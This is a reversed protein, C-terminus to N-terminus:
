RRMTSKKSQRRKTNRRKNGIRINRTIKRKQRLMQVEVKKGSRRGHIIPQFGRRRNVWLAGEAQQMKM